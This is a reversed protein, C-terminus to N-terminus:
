CHGLMRSALAVQRCMLLLWTTTRRPVPQEAPWLTMNGCLPCRAACCGSLAAVSRLGYFILTRDGAGQQQNSEPAAPSRRDGDTATTDIGQTRDNSNPQRSPSPFRQAQRRLLTHVQLNGPASLRVDITVKM